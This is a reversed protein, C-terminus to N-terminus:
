GTGIRYLQLWGPVLGRREYLRRAADNGEMVGIVLDHVGRRDLEADVADLLATGLGRGRAPERVLLTWVEGYRPGLTWSDQPEDHVRVTAYGLLEGDDEALVAFGGSAFTEVYSERRARGPRRTTWSRSCARSPGTITICSSGCRGCTM